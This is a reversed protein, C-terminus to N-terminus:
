QPRRAPLKGAMESILCTPYLFAIDSVWFGVSLSAGQPESQVTELVYEVDGANGYSCFRLVPCEQM